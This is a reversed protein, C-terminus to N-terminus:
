GKHYNTIEVDYAHGKHFRFCVRWPGNVTMAWQGKRNGKLKHLGVSRLWGLDDLSKAVNLAALRNEAKTRDLGRFGRINGNEFVRRTRENKWAKIM